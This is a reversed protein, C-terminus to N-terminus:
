LAHMGLTRMYSFFFMIVQSVATPHTHWSRRPQRDLEWLCCVQLSINGLFVQLSIFMLKCPFHLFQVVTSYIIFKTNWLRLRRCAPRARPWFCWSRMCGRRRRHCQLLRLRMVTSQTGGNGARRPWEEGDGMSTIGFTPNYYLQPSSLFRRRQLCLPGSQRPRWNRSGLLFLLIAAFFFSFLPFLSAPCVPSRGRRPWPHSRPM